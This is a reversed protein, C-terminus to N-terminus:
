ILGVLGALGFVTGLGLSTYFFVWGASNEAHKLTKMVMFISLLDLPLLFILFWLGIYIAYGYDLVTIFFMVSQAPANGILVPLTKIGHSRDGEVDNFDKTSQLGIVWIMSFIALPITDIGAIIGLAYIPLFGRSIAQVILNIPFIKKLYLPEETYSVALMLMMLGYLWIHLLVSTLFALFLISYAFKRANGTTVAGSVTPRYIKGNQRDIAIEIPNTQNLAQGGAQMMTLLCGFLVAYLISLHVVMGGVFGVVFAPLMTMPRMLDM